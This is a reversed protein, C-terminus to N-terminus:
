CRRPPQPPMAPRCDAVVEAALAALSVPERQLAAHRSSLRETELLDSILRSMAQLERLLAQRQPEADPTDPLLETHLRARTLPSRLEHSIALLLARKAELMRHIDQGM